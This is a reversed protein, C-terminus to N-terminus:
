GARVIAVTINDIGGRQNALEVLTLTAQQLNPNSMVVQLMEHDEIMDSLGDSCLLFTDGEVLEEVTIDVTVQEMGLARTVINGLLSVEFSNPDLLGARIREAVLSHDQSIQEIQENCIRYIRSDGINATVVKDRMFACACITTGMDSLSPDIRARSLIHDNAGFIAQKMAEIVKDEDLWDGPRLQRLSHSVVQVGLESAVHGGAHGGMGDCVIVVRDRLDFYLADENHERVRGKNTLAAMSLKVLAPGRSAGDTTQAHAGPNASDSSKLRGSSSLSM